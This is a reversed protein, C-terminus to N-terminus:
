CKKVNNNKTCDAMVALVGSNLTFFKRRMSRLVDHAICLLVRYTRRKPAITNSSKETSDYQGLCSPEQLVM